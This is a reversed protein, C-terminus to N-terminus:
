RNRERRAREKAQREGEPKRPECLGSLYLFAQELRQRVHRLQAVRESRDAIMEALWRRLLPAHIDRDDRLAEEIGKAQDDTLM